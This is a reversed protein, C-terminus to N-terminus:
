PRQRRRWAMDIWVALILVVALVMKQLPTPVGMLIMGSELSQM